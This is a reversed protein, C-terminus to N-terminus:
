ALEILTHVSHQLEVALRLTERRMLIKLYKTICM